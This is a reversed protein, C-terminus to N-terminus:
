CAIGVGVHSNTKKHTEKQGNISQEKRATMNFCEDGANDLRSNKIRRLVASILEVALQLEDLVHCKDM